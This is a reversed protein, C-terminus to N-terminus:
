RRKRRLLLAAAIMPWLSCPEPIAASLPSMAFNNSFGDFALFTPFAAPNGGDVNPDIGTVTFQSVPTPFVYSDGAALVVTGNIADSVTYFGDADPVSGPLMLETFNTAGDTEYLYGLAAPPDFWRGDGPQDTFSLSGDPLIAGPLIPDSEFEGPIPGDIRRINGNFDLVYLNGRADEAFSSINGLSDAPDLPNTWDFFSFANETDLSWVGRSVFDAFFYLGDLEDVPGRYVYGGTVSNGEGPGFGHPYDYIPDVNGAPKPGGVPTDPSLPTPTPVTGERLRWGYNEGGTSDAPQFNVEERVTQGVDAIYLDGTERDFSSRWPNRLGYSWVEAAGGGGAFPNDAPIGYSGANAGDVDIRLMAGLLTNPNQGHNGPDNGGGGDGSGIYLNGDPGFDMWGGNHNSAPQNFSLVQRLSAPNAQTATAPDGMAQYERVETNGSGNTVNVYFRGNTRYDPHFALGLLGREGNTSLGSLSLFPTPQISETLLDLIRINGAKEVVFLRDRDGPVHTAYLPQSFGSGVLELSIDSVTFGCVTRFPLLVFAIALAVAPVIAAKM